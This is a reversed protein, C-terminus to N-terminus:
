EHILFLRNSEVPLLAVIDTKAVAGAGVTGATIKLLTNASGTGLVELSALIFALQYKPPAQHGFSRATVAGTVAANIQAVIEPITLGQGSVDAFTVTKSAGDDLDLELGDLGYIKPELHGSFIVGHLYDVLEQGNDFTRHTYAM